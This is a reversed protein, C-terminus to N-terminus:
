EPLGWKGRERALGCQCGSTASLLTGAMHGALARLSAGDGIYTRAVKTLKMLIMSRILVFGSLIYISNNRNMFNTNSVM